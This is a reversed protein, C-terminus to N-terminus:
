IADYSGFLYNFVGILELYSDLLFSLNVNGFFRIWIKLREGAFLFFTHM